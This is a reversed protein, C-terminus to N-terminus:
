KKKQKIRAKKKIRIVCGILDVDEKNEKEIKKYVNEKSAWEGGLVKVITM